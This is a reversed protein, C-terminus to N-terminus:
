SRGPRPSILMPGEPEEALPKKSKASLFDSYFRPPDISRLNKVLWLLIWSSDGTKASSPRVEHLSSYSLGTETSGGFDGVFCVRQRRASDLNESGTKSAYIWVRMGTTVDAGLKGFLQDKESGFAVEGPMGDEIASLLHVLPVPALLDYLEKPKPM